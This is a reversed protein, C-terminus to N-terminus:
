INGIVYKVAENALKITNNGIKESNSIFSGEDQSVFFYYSDEIPKCIVFGIRFKQFNWEILFSEDEQMVIQLKSLYYEANNIGPVSVIAEYLVKLVQLIKTKIFPDAIDDLSSNKAIATFVNMSYPLGTNYPTGFSTDTINSSFKSSTIVPDVDLFGAKHQSSDITPSVIQTRM